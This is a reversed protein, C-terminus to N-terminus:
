ALFHDEMSELSSSLHSTPHWKDPAMDRRKEDLTESTTTENNKDNELSMPFRGTGILGILGQYLLIDLVMVCNM